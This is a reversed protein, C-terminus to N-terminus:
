EKLREKEFSAKAETYAPGGPIYKLELALEEVRASLKEIQIFLSDLTVTPPVATLQDDFKWAGFGSGQVYYM